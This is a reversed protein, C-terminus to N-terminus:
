QNLDIINRNIIKNFQKTIYIKYLVRSSPLILSFGIMDTFIGPTLLLAGGILVCLGNILEETPMKSMRLQEQIKLIIQRGEKKALYAGIIGTLAVLLITHGWNTLEAIKFLVFIEILPIITFLLVLRTFINRSKM